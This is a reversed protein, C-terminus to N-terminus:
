FSTNLSFGLMANSTKFGAPKNLPTGAFLDYSLAGLTGRLGLAAGTLSRGVLNSTSPGRVEGHDIGIYLQQTTQGLMLALENRLTWGHEAILFNQEDFGRVTYRSGIAFQDQAIVRTRAWQGQAALTYLWRQGLATGPATLQAGLRTIQPRSTGTGSLEEAVHQSGLLGTGRRYSANLDLAADGLTERHTLGAEWGAMRRRQLEYETDNQFNRSRRMWLAMSLSTKRVEDRYAIRSLRLEHNDSEGRYQSALNNTAVQQYYRNASSTWGLLWYGLPLSYHVVEGHTGRPGDEGGGLDRNASVYFLDNLSLGDDISLTLSGQYRGTANSGSNNVGGSFRVPRSQAWKIVVDSDGPRVAESQSSDSPVIEIDAEATPVRKFNELAQEIDRLNLVDGATVPLANWLTARRSSDAAFRASRIRGPILVLQLVGASLDHPPALVRSTVFGRAILANQMRNMVRNIAQMGLCRSLPPDVFGSATKGAAELLWQFDASQDGSLQVANITFCPTEETPLLANADADALAPSDIRANPM